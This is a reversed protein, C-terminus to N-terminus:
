SSDLVKRILVAIDKKSLPKLAFEKIGISKAKEESIITSYGTCLIIPIDPKIQMMRGAIDAGTMGPMTQDTIVLDFLDPQNQFTELAEISSNRVTVHYGLRELMSKGMEALIEEDDIFLIRERGVPTPKVDEIEPLLEDEIVPIFVHFSTGEGPESYLSIYGGYSKVIGHVIALGMGSGKGTEKTTFYPDFIKKKIDPAIGPGSDNVSLQVFTGPEVSPEYVLDEISLTVEKLLIGLTGGTDEMAHFANTCLNMLIQHIQTPDALILGTASTTDQNIEITTPLSPRLMKIANKVVSEPQLPIREMENQRSFALIQQVLDKARKGGELVKDLDMAVTSKPSVDDRAMEAYGLIAALINNFDHAIGGALTGIAEMKHAQRLKNELKEKEEEAKKRETLDFFTSILVKNGEYEISQISSDICIQTGDKHKALLEQKKLPERDKIEVNKEAFEFLIEQDDMSVYFDKIMSGVLEAETRGLMTQAVPNAYLIMGDSSFNSIIMATPSSDLVTRLFNDADKVGLVFKNFTTLLAGIENDALEAPIAFGTKEKKTQNKRRIENAVKVIPRTLVVYFVSALMAGLIMNRLLGSFLIFLSREYLNGMAKHKDVTISLQGYLPHRDDGPLDITYEKDIDFLYNSISRTFSDIDPVEIGSALVEGFSNTIVANDIFSYQLLGDIVIAAVNQNLNYAAEKAPKEAAKLINNIDRNLQEDQELYDLMVQVMGVLLGLSFAVALSLKTLKATLNDAKFPLMTQLTSHADTHKQKL